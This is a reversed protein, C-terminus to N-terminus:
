PIHGSRADRQRWSVLPEATGRQRLWGTVNLLAGAADQPIDFQATTEEIVHMGCDVRGDCRVTIEGRVQWPPGVALGEDVDPVSCLEAVFSVDAVEACGFMSTRGSRTRHYEIGSGTWSARVGLHAALQRVQADAQGLLDLVTATDALDPFVWHPDGDALPITEV